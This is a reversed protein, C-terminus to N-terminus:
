VSVETMEVKAVWRITTVIPPTGAIIPVGTVMIAPRGNTTDAVVTIDWTSDSEFITEVVLGDVTVSGVGTGRVTTWKLRYMAHNTSGQEKAIITAVFAYATDNDTTVYFTAGNLALETPTDDTTEKRMGLVSTQADGVGAFAGSSHVFSGWHRARAWYGIATSYSTNIANYQGSSFNGTGVIASQLGFLANGDGNIGVHNYGASINYNGNIPTAEGFLANRSGDVYNSLGTVINYGYAGLITHGFGFVANHTAGSTGTHNQGAYIHHTGAVNHGQGSVISYSGTVTNSLGSVENSIGGVINTNGFIASDTATIVHNQGGIVDFAGALTTNYLLALHGGGAVANITSSYGFIASYGLLGTIGIGEAVIISRTANGSNISGGSIGYSVSLGTNNYGTSLFSGATDYVFETSGGITAAGTFIAVQKAVGSGTIGGTGGGLGGGNLRAM